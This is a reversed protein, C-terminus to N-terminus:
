KGILRAIEKRKVKDELYKEIEARIIEPNLNKDKEILEEPHKYWKKIMNKLGPCIKESKKFKCGCVKCILEDDKHGYLTFSGIRHITNPLKESIEDSSHNNHDSYVLGVNGGCEECSVAKALDNVIPILSECYPCELNMTFM